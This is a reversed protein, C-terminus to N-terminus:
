RVRVVFTYHRGHTPEPFLMVARYATRDRGNRDRVNFRCRHDKGLAQIRGVTAWEGAVRKLLAVRSRPPFTPARVKLVDRDGKDKGSLRPPPLPSCKAGARLRPCTAYVTVLDPGAEALLQGEPGFVQARLEVVGLDTVAFVYYAEGRENTTACQELDQASCSEAFEGSPGTRTFRVRLGTIPTGDEATATLVERSPESYAIAGGGDHELVYTAGETAREAAPAPAASAGLAVCVAVLLVQIKPM